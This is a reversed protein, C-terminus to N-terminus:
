SATSGDPEEYVPSETALKDLREQLREQIQSMLPDVEARRDRQPSVEIADGVHLIVKLPGHARAVDTLDEEFREVTEYLRDVSPKDILYDPLYCSVQQALYIDALQRWRRDRERQSVEGRVMAPLIKM